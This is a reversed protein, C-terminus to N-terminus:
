LPPPPIQGEGVTSAPAKVAEVVVGIGLEELQAPKIAGPADIM